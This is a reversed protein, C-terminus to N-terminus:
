SFPPINGAMEAHGVFVYEEPTRVDLIHVQVPSTKGMKYAEEADCFFINKPINFYDPM